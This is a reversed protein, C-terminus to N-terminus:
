TVISDKPDLLPGGNGGDEIKGYLTPLKPAILHHLYTFPSGRFESFDM